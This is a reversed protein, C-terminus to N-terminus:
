ESLSKNKKNLAEIEAKYLNEVVYVKNLSSFDINLDVKIRQNQSGLDKNSSKIKGLYIGGPFVSSYGSTMVSDGETIRTTVPIDKIEAISIDGGTWKLLGSVNSSKLKCSVVTKPHLFSIVTSYNNTVAGIMGVVGMPSIVGMEEIVGDDSGMNLTIFNNPGTFNNSVVDAVRYIYKQTFLSDEVQFYEGNVRRLSPMLKSRLLANEKQLINNVSRLNFYDEINNLIEYAGGSISNASNIFKTRQYNKQQVTLLVGVFLLLGFLIEFHFRKLIAIINIL